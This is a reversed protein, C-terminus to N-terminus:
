KGDGDDGDGVAAAAPVPLVRSALEEALVATVDILTKGGYRIEGVADGRGKSDEEETLLLPLETCALLVIESSM